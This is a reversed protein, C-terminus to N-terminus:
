TFMQTMFLKLITTGTTTYLKEIGFMKLPTNNEQKRM